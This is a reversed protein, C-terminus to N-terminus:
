ITNILTNFRKDLSTLTNRNLMKNMERNKKQLERFAAVKKAVNESISRYDSSVPLVKSRVARENRTPLPVNCCILNGTGSVAIVLVGKRIRM